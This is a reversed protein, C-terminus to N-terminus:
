LQAFSQLDGSHGLWKELVEKFIKDLFKKTVHQFVNLIDDETIEVKIRDKLTTLEKLISKFEDASVSDDILANYIGLEILKIIKLKM